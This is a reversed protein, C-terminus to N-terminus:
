FSGLDAEDIVVVIEVDTENAEIRIRQVINNDQSLVESRLFGVADGHDQIAKMIPPGCELETGIGCARLAVGLDGVVTLEVIVPIAYPVHLNFRVIVTPGRFEHNGKFSETERLRRDLFPSDVQATEINAFVFLTEPRRNGNSVAHAPNGLGARQGAELSDM